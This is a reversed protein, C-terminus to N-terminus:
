GPCTGGHTIQLFQGGAREFFHKGARRQVLHQRPAQLLQFRRALAAGQLVDHVAAQALQPAQIGPQFRQQLARQGVGLKAPQQAHRQVLQGVGPRRRMGHHVVRDGRRALAPPAPQGVRHQAIKLAAAGLQFLKRVLPRSRAPRMGVPPDDFQLGFMRRVPLADEFGALLM